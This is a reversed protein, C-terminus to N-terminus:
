PPADGRVFTFTATPVPEDGYREELRREFVSRAAAFEEDSMLSLTSIFRGDVRAMVEERTM